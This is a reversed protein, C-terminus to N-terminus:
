VPKYWRIKEKIKYHYYFVNDWLMSGIRLFDVKCDFEYKLMDYNCSYKTQIRTFVVFM